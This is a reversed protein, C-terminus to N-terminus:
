LTGELGEIIETLNTTGALEGFRNIIILNILSIKQEDNQLFGYINPYDSKKIKSLENKVENLFEYREPLPKHTFRYIDKVNM